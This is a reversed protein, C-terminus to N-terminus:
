TIIIQIMIKKLIKILKKTYLM